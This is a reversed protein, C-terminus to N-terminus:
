RLLKRAVLPGQIKKGTAAPFNEDRRFFYRIVGGAQKSRKFIGSEKDICAKRRSVIGLESMEERNSVPGHCDREGRMRFVLLFTPVCLEM